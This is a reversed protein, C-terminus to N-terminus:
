DLYQPFTGATLDVVIQGATIEEQVNRRKHRLYEAIEGGKGGGSFRPKAADLTNHTHEIRQRKFTRGTRTSVNHVQEISSGIAKSHDGEQSSLDEDEDQVQTTFQPGPSPSATSAESLSLTPTLNFRSRPTSDNLLM